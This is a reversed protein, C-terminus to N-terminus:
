NRFGNAYQAFRAMLNRTIPGPSPIPTDDVSALPVIDKFSSTIFAEDSSLLESLPLTREEVKMGAARALELTVNRTIGHLMGEAPTIIVEDKVAFLNSGTCELACGESVYIAEAAGTERLKPQLRVAAIYDITKFEPLVRRHEHTIARAGQEYWPAPYPAMPEALLYLVERGRVHVIGGEATGGTLIMRITARGHPANARVVDRMALLVEGEAYPLALDLTAASRGFRQWHDHFRFPEGDHAALGEYIGYGRLLSLDYVGITAESLPKLSGNLWVMPEM